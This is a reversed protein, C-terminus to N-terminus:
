TLVTPISGAVPIEAIKDLDTNISRSSGLSPGLSHLLHSGAVVQTSAKAFLPIMSLSKILTSTRFNLIDM